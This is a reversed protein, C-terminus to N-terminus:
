KLYTSLFANLLPVHYKAAYSTDWYVKDQYEIVEESPITLGELVTTEVGDLYHLLPKRTEAYFSRTIKVINNEKTLEDNFFVSADKLIGEEYYQFTPVFGRDYAYDSGSATSLNHERLFSIYNENTTDKIGDVRLIGEIDLDIILMKQNFSKNNQYPALVNPLAYKCDSCTNWIYGVLTKDEKEVFIKNDLYEQDVLFYNPATTYKEVLDKFPEDHKFFDNDSGTKYTFSKTIMGEKVFVFSPSSNDVPFGWSNSNAVIEKYDIKYILTKSNRVYNNIVMNFITWCGCGPEPYIAILMNENANMKSELMDFKIDRAGDDMYTGYMISFKDQEINDCGVLTSLALLPLFLLKFTNKM